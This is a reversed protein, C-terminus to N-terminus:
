TDCIVLDSSFRGKTDVARSQRNKLSRLPNGYSYLVGLLWLAMACAFNWHHLISFDVVGSPNCVDYADAFRTTHAMFLPVTWGFVFLVLFAAFSMATRREGALRMNKYLFTELRLLFHIFGSAAHVVTANFTNKRVVRSFTRARSTKQGAEAVQGAEDVVVLVPM